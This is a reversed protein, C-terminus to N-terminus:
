APPPPPLPSGRPTGSRGSATEPPRAAFDKEIVMLALISEAILRQLAYALGARGGFILGKGFLCYAFVALPMLPPARRLWRKLGPRASKLHALERGMYRAQAGVWSEVSKRDDHVIRGRLRAVRGRVRWRETHGEDFVEVAGRRFLVTNAPYLSARLPRGSVAYGFSIRYADVPAAPDLAAIEEVLEPSLLYDADLRLVWDTAIGTQTIAYHWQRAHSGFPRHFVRVRPHERLIDLTGDTSGSDVAVIDRAWDLPALTRRINPAENFTLLVPTIAHLM